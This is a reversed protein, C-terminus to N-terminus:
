KTLFHKQWLKRGIKDTLIAELVIRDFLPIIDTFAPRKTPDQHWCREILKTLTRPSYDPILPREGKDVVREKLEEM